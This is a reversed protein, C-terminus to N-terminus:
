QDGGRREVDFGHDALKSALDDYQEDARVIAPWRGRQDFMAATQIEANQAVDTLAVAYVGSIDTERVRYYTAIPKDARKIYVHDSV